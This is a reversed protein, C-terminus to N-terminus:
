CESPSEPSGHQVDGHHRDVRVFSVMVVSVITDPDQISVVPDLWPAAAAADVSGPDGLKIEIAIWVGDRNQVIADVALNYSDSYHSVSAHCAQAYVRLDRVVLSEFFHGLVERDNFLQRPTAGLACIALAPDALHRKVAKRLRARSLLQPVWPNQDEVM